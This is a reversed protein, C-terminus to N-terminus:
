CIKKIIECVEHESHATYVQPGSRDDIPTESLRSSWGGAFTCLIIIKNYNWAYAIESLTGARGGIAIIIDGSLVNISNRAFGIGTPIVITCYNNAHDPNEGPLIGVVTGGAEFAGKSTAAMVGGRGGSILIHGKEAIFKGISYCENYFPTEESDGIIVIQKKRM